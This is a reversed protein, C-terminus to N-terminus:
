QFFPVCARIQAIKLGLSSTYLNGFRRPIDNSLFDVIELQKKRSVNIFVHKNVYMNFYIGIHTADKWNKWTAYYYCFHQAQNFDVRDNCAQFLQIAIEYSISNGYFFRILTMTTLYTLPDIFLYKLIIKPWWWINGLHREALRLISM